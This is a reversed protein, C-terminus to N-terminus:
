EKVGGLTVGEIFYRNTFLYIALLPLFILLGAAMSVGYNNMRTYIYEEYIRSIMGVIFTRETTGQLILAQWIYDGFVELAKFAMVAGVVPKCLPLMIQWFIRLEGAGDIRGSEVFDRPIMKMYNYMLLFGLPYFVGTLIIAPLGSLHYTRVLVFMPILISYRSVMMTAAFALYLARSWRMKYVTLSYAATGNVVLSLFVSTVTIAVSNALWRLVIPGVRLVGQYNELTPHSPIFDPPMKMLGVMPTFSGVVMWFLPFLYLGCILVLAAAKLWKM